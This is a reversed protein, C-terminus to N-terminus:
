DRLIGTLCIQRKVVEMEFRRLRRGDGSIDDAEGQRMAQFSYQVKADDDYGLSRLDVILSPAM